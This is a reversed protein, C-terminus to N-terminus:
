KITWKGHSVVKICRECLTPHATFSGVAESYNWCRSCKSGKAKKVEV